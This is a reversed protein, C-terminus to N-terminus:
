NPRSQKLPSDNGKEFEDEAYDDEEYKNPKQNINKKTPSIAAIKEASRHKIMNEKDHSAALVKNGAM